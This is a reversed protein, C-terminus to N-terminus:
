LSTAHFLFKDPNDISEIYLLKVHSESESESNLDWYELVEEVGLQASNGVSIVRSFTLGKPIASEMIFVATAGSGSFLILERKKLFLFQNLSFAPMPM